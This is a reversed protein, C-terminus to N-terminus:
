VLHHGKLFRETKWRERGGFRGWFDLAHTEERTGTSGGHRDWSEREGRM